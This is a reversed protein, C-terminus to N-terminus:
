YYGAKIAKHMMTRGRSHSGYTGKHIDRLIYDAEEESLCRLLPLTLSRKYLTNSLFLYWNVRTKVKRVEGMDEPLENKRLYRIIQSAWECEPNVM